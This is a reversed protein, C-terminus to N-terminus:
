GLLQLVGQPLQNAQALMAQASQNLINNKTYEMMEEAVDTDRITSEANQINERMVGLNNITHDLRNQLAGLNGRTDSVNNIAQKIKDLAEAAGKQSSIDVDGVGIMKSHMDGVSVTLKNWADSTDGIQLTLGGETAGESDKFRVYTRDTAAKFAAESAYLAPTAAGSYEATVASDTSDWGDKKVKVTKGDVTNVFNTDNTAILGTEVELGTAQSIKSAMEAVNGNNIAAPATSSDDNQVVWNRIGADTLTKIDDDTLKNSVFVFKEGNVEFTAEALDRTAITANAPDGLTNKWVKAKALDYVQFSDEALPNETISSTYSTTTASSTRNSAKTVSFGDLRAGTKGPMKAEFSLSGDDNATVTFNSKVTENKDLIEKFAAAADAATMKSATTLTTNMAEGNDDGNERAVKKNAADSVFFSETINQENGDADTFNLTISFKEDDAADVQSDGAAQNLLNSTKYSAKQASVTKASSIVDIGIKSLDASVGNKGTSSLSGDLLKLGNFNTSDAIRDIESKLADVEKQLQERDLENQYTGNASQEALTTMRNLMDHVETLAGEATQILSIGDKANKNAGELGTIQARMKESIALGAADDGARNIKYGTSLKELNKSINSNNTSFNRYSNMAAINHQIRM